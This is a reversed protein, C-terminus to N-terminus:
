PQPSEFDSPPFAQVLDQLMRARDLLPAVNPPPSGAFTAQIQGVWQRLHAELPDPVAVQNGQAALFIAYDEPRILRDARQDNIKLWAPRPREPSDELHVQVPVEAAATVYTFAIRRPGPGPKGQVHIDKVSASGPALAQLLSLPHSLSDIGMVAGKASPSLGMAFSDLARPQDPFLQWFSPLVHPWQCNEALVLGRKAFNDLLAPIGITLQPLAGQWHLVLPKECLTHLGHALAQQLYDAHFEPPCLIALAHVQHDTQLAHLDPYGPCAHGLIDALAKSTSASHGHSSGVHACVEAGAAQLFRAVFPGLGQRARRAGILAIRPKM